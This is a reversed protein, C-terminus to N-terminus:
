YSSRRAISNVAGETIKGIGKQATDYEYCCYLLWVTRWLEEEPAMWSVSLGLDQAESFDIVAGHSRYTDSSSIKKIVVDLDEEDTDKLM